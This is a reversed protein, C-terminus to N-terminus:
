VESSQITKFIILYRDLFARMDYPDHKVTDLFVKDKVLKNRANILRQDTINDDIHQLVAVVSSLADFMCKNFLPAQKKRSPVCPWNKGFLNLCKHLTENFVTDLHLSEFDKVSLANLYKMTKALFDNLEGEYDIQYDPASAGIYNCLWLYFSIFRTVCERDQMRKQPKIYGKILDKFIDTEALQNILKTSQGAYLFNRIEAASLKEGGHNVRQFVEMTMSDYSQPKIIHFVMQSEEIRNQMFPPLQEYTLGSISKLETLRELRYNGNIYDFIASLRQKGDIVAMAGEPNERLYFAPLPIGLLISEILKSRKPNKWEKGHLYTVDMLLKGNLKMNQLLFVTMNATVVKLRSAVRIYEDQLFGLM